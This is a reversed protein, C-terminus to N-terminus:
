TQLRLALPYRTLWHAFIFCTPIIRTTALRKAANWVIRSNVRKASSGGHFGVVSETEGCERNDDQDRVDTVRLCTVLFWGLFHEVDQVRWNRRSRQDTWSSGM